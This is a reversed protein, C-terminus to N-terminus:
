CSLEYLAVGPQLQGWIVYHHTPCSYRDNIHLFLFLFFTSGPLRLSGAKLLFLLNLLHATSFGNYHDVVVHRGHHSVSLWWHLVWRTWRLVHSHSLLLFWRVMNLVELAPLGTRQMTVQMAKSIALPHLVRSAPM